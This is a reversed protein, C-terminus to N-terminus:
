RTNLTRLLKVTADPAVYARAVITTSMDIPNRMQNIEVLNSNLMEQALEMVLRVRMEHKAQADTNFVHMADENVIVKAAILKGGIAYDTTTIDAQEWPMNM